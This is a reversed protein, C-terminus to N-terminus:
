GYVTSLGLGTGRGVDKTTFFPEFLRQRVEESMGVGTDSVRLAVHPRASLGLEVAMAEDIPAARLEILLRGGRPMADRANVALNMLVQELQGIDARVRSDPATAEVVLEIDEGLLRRLIVENRALVVALDFVVLKVATKRCFALLQSTIAAGSAAAKKIEHLFICAPDDAALHDLAIDVCGSVGMLLNNFDHAVGSALTGIAEMKQSQRLQEETRKRETLDRLFGCFRPEGDITMQSVTLFVPCTTGDKRRAVVERGAGIIKADGTRLYDVIYRDHREAHPSPMLRNVNHGVIEDIEYGFMRLGAPNISEVIGRADITIIVDVASDILTEFRTQSNLLASRDLIAVRAGDIEGTAAPGAAIGELRVAIPRGMPGAVELQVSQREGFAFLARSFLAYARADHEVVFASLPRGVLRKCSVGLLTAAATNAELIVSRADLTVYAVPALNFLEYYRDRAEEAELQSRRLDENQLELEVQHLQLERM